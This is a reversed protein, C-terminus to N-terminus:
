HATWASILPRTLTSGIRLAWNVKGSAISAKSNADSRCFTTFTENIAQFPFAPMSLPSPHFLFSPPRFPWSPFCLGQNVQTVPEIGGASLASGRPRTPFFVRTAPQLEQLLVPMVCCRLGCNKQRGKLVELGASRTNKWCHAVLYRRTLATTSLSIVWALAQAQLKSM